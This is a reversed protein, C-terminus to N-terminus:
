EEALIANMKSAAELCGEKMTIQKTWVKLMSDKIAEEWKVTNKSYPRIVMDKQMNLYSQLHFQPVSNKWADSTGKYASMTIGLKAQKLQGEKSCFYEVLKWSDDARTTNAAIAWGLGNYISCQRGTSATKPLMAVDCNALTYSNDRFAALLWSGQLTMAVKGSEFLVDEGSESMTEQSPMLNENIIKEMFQMAEITKPNDMGSTKKDDSIVYGNNGYILNYWGAQNNTNVNAFGYVSGDAKTIKKAALYLDNWTWDDTPYAVGAEDFLTKNYWLGITDIDKPVAYYKKNYTYLGFIDSPYNSPDIESSKKIKDTVDLLMDNSMYRQSENSHMWFVDPLSGGQAGASLLTWYNDWNVVQIEAKIGTKATFDDIIQRIGPEQNSDWIMVTLPKESSTANKKTSEATESTGNAFAFSAIVVLVMVLSVVKKM